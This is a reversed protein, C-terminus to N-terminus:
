SEIWISVKYPYIEGEKLRDIESNIDYPDIQEYFGQEDKIEIASPEFAERMLRFIGEDYKDDYEAEFGSIVMAGKKVEAYIAANHYQEAHDIVREQNIIKNKEEESRILNDNEIAQYALLTKAEEISLPITTKERYEKGQWRFGKETPAAGVSFPKM